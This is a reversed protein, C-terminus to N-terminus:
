QASVTFGSAKGALMANRDFTVHIRKAGSEGSLRYRENSVDLRGDSRSIPLAFDYLQWGGTVPDATRSVAICFPVRGDATPQFSRSIVWRGATRDVQILPASEVDVGCPEPAASWLSGFPLPGALRVGELSYIVISRDSLRLIHRGYTIAGPDPVDSRKLDPVERVPSGPTWVPSPPLKRLDADLVHPTVVQAGAACAWLLLSAGAGASARRAGAVDRAGAVYHFGKM